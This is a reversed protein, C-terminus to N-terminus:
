VDVSGLIWLAMAIFSNCLVRSDVGTNPLSAYNYYSLSSKLHDIALRLNGMYCATCGLLTHALMLATPDNTTQALSLCQKGFAFGTKWKGQLMYFQGLGYIVPVLESSQPLDALVDLADSYIQHVDPTIFGKWPVASAGLAMLFQLETQKSGTTYPLTRLLELGQQLHKYAERYAALALAQKGAELRYQAAKEINGAEAYHYALEASVDTSYSKAELVEAIRRHLFRRRAQSLRRYAVERLKDHTFDYRDSSQERIIFRHCCEDLASLLSREDEESAQTLVTFSFDRGIVAALDALRRAQPSLQRLRHEIIAQVSDPMAAFPSEVRMMEVIFLANGETEQYLRANESIDLYRGVIHAAITASEAQNFPNLKIETLQRSRHLSTLLNSLPVDNHREEPRLTGVVLINSEPEIGMLYQLCTLTQEDCWQLDDIFLILPQDVVCIVRGISEFLRQRQWSETLPDPRPLHPNESHLEPLLRSLETQWVSDLHSIARRLTPTRLWGILSAYALPKEVAYTRTTATAYGQKNAWTILEEALRTKGIGAVGSILAFYPRHPAAKYWATHLKKWETQRGVFPVPQEARSQQREPPPQALKLLNYVNLTAQSPLVAFEEELVLRCQEFTELAKGRDSNLAYLRMLHRYAAERLPDRQLLRQLYLIATAYDRQKEHLVALEALVQLYTQFLRQRPQTIWEDYCEPLLDGQYIEIARALSAQRTSLDNNKRAQKAEEVAQGFEAADFVYPATPLWQVTNNDACFYREADPLAQRLQHLYKRLNTRAQSDTSRPWLVAACYHRSQPKQCHVLLYVLFAQLKATKIHPLTQNNYRLHFTGLVEVYLM